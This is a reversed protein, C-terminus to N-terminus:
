TVAADTASSNSIIHARRLAIKDIKGTATRPISGAFRIEDPLWWKAMHGSLHEIIEAPTLAVDEQLVVILIPREDWKPHPIGIAAADAVGTLRLAADELAVSSIWEGGSKIVDKARDVIQMYGYPDLTAVDGTDFWGDADTADQEALFYRKIVWPGRVLLNGPTVGDHAVDNGQDDRLKLEIGALPRGQKRKIKRQDEVPLKLVASSPRGVTGIPSMETMGWAHTFRIGQGEEYGEILSSPAPAGGCLAESLKGFGRGDKEALDLVGRWITPVAGALTVDESRILGLIATPDFSAGNFVLKAGTAAAVYPLGWANAHYMPVIPLITTRSSIDFGDPSAAAMAHLFNSRHSYLVGKPRGTTGSTYCLAAGDDEDVGIWDIPDHGEILEDHSMLDIRDAPLASRPVMVVVHEVTPLDNRIADVLPLFQPDLFLIRGGAHSCIYSIDREYLRPNITHSIAAAGTIGFWAELHRASNWALTAVRDGPKIGLAVLAGALRSARNHTRAWRTRDTTGDDNRTVIEQDGHWAAAHDILRSLTLSWNQMGGKM